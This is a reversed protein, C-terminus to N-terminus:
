DKSYLLECIKRLRAVVPKASIHDKCYLVTRVIGLSEMAGAERRLYESSVLLENGWIKAVVVFTWRWRYVKEVHGFWKCESSRLMDPALSFLCLHIVRMLFSNREYVIDKKLATRRLEKDPM